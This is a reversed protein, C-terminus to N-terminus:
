KARFEERHIRIMYAPDDCCGCSHYDDFQDVDKNAKKSTFFYRDYRGASYNLDDYIELADIVKRLELTKEEVEKKLDSMYKELREKM